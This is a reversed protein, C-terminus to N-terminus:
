SRRGNGSSSMWTNKRLVRAAVQTHRTNRAMLQGTTLIGPKKSSAQTVKSSAAGRSTLRIRTPRGRTNRSTNGGAEMLTALVVGPLAVSVRASGVRSNSDRVLRHSLPLNNSPILGQVITCRSRRKTALSKTLM